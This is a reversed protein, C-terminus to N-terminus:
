CLGWDGDTLTYQQKSRRDFDDAERREVIGIRELYRLRSSLLSRSLGPLADHIETFRTNGRGVGARHPTVL